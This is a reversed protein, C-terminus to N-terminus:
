HTFWSKLMAVEKELKSVRGDVAIVVQNIVQAFEKSQQQFRNNLVTEVKTMQEDLRTDLHAIVLKNQEKVISKIDLLDQPTLSM